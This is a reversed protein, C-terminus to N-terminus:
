WTKCIERQSKVDDIVLIIEGHGYLDELAISTKKEAITDRTIPFYLNFRTGRKSSKADIYGDHNQVVNWVVTLGLGTGSRGMMKKTFFPEFIRKLDESSIGPGDDAVVLVAYEGINVEDYGLQTFSKRVRM